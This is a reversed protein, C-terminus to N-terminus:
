NVPFAYKCTLIFDNTRIKNMKKDQKTAVKKEAKNLLGLTGRHHTWEAGVIINKTVNYEAGLGMVFLPRKSKTITSEKTTVSNVTLSSEVTTKFSHIAMGVKAYPLIRGVKAGVIGTFAVNWRDRIKCVYSGSANQTADAGAAAAHAGAARAVPAVASAGAAALADALAAAGAHARAAALAAASAINTKDLNQKTQGKSGGLGLSMEAGLVLCTNPVLFHGGLALRTALARAKKYNTAINAKSTDILARKIQSLSNVQDDFRNTLGKETLLPAHANSFGLGFGGYLRSTVDYSSDAQAASVIALAFLAIKKTM